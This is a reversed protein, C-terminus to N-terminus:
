QKESREEPGPLVVCAVDQEEAAGALVPLRLMIRAGGEPRNEAWIMGGHEEVIKKVIALGLGTGKAKTTVYPEFLHNPSDGDFGSGNDVVQIELFRCEAESKQRTIVEVRGDERGAVAEQANKVLNHIVQRLRLPDGKIQAQESALSSVLQWGGRTTRYLELVESLFSDVEIPQLNMQPPRAYDSFANVMEKMAEVQQVITHTARELVEADEANMRRLYKHRLREASLQIPTLPNKIEHALRRAVEGWAANRQARILATIDDFVLVEGASDGDPRQLPTSRCLLIQRGEGGYLTLQESWGERQESHVRLLIEVLQELHPHDEALARLPKGLYSGADLRLIEGAAANATRLCGEPDITMVGTSLQGLVTELYSRQAEVQRQSRDATDRAQAIRRTMANFSAVVFSLEDHSRPLPLQMDYDGSAVARTGEAIDTVPRVLRQATFFAAWVAALLSFLLVLALTLTFTSKLSGRLYALEHYRSYAQQVKETLLSISETTPYLAQLLLPRTSDAVVVRVELLKGEGKPLLGVFSGGDRVQELISRDPLEPVLITPDVNISTIVQGSPELLTLESAGSREREESLSLTMGAVSVETLQALIKETSRLRERRHLDLSARSLQLADEMASDIQVDFWSDIGHLLFQQSYFYVVSVPVLALLAFLLVMRLTLRSGAVHRRYSAVLQVVNVAVLAVLAVLGFLIFLLLPLYLRNLQEANQVASSMLHLAVLLLLLLAAVPLTSRSIPKVSQNRM